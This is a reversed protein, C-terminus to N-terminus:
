CQARIADERERGREREPEPGAVPFRSFASSLFYLVFVFLVSVLSFSRHSLSNDLVVTGTMTHGHEREDRPSSEGSTACNGILRSSVIPAIFPPPLPPFVSPRLLLIILIFYLSSHPPALLFPFPLCSVPPPHSPRVFPRSPPFRSVQLVVEVDYSNGKSKQSGQFRSGNYLLSKTVGPQKSNAPPPPVVDVKVPM